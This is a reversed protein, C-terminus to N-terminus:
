ILSICEALLLYPHPSSFHFHVIRRSNLLNKSLYYWSKSIYNQCWLICWTHYKISRPFSDSWSDFPGLQIGNRFSPTLRSFPYFLFFLLVFSYIVLRSPSPSKLPSVIGSKNDHIARPYRITTNCTGALPASQHHIARPGNRSNPHPSPTCPYPYCMKTRILIHGCAPGGFSPRNGAEDNKSQVLRALQHM